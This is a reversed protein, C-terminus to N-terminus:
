APTEPKSNLADILRELVKVFARLQGNLVEPQAIWTQLDTALLEPGEIWKHLEAILITIQQVLLEPSSDTSVLSTVLGTLDDVWSKLYATLKAPENSYENVSDPNAILANLRTVLKSIKEIILVQGM